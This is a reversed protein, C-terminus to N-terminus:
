KANIEVRPMGLLVRADDRIVATVALGYMDPNLLNRLFIEVKEEDLM